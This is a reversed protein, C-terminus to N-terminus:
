AFSALFPARHSINYTPGKKSLKSEILIAESVDLSVKAASLQRVASRLNGKPTKGSVRGLVIHPIFKNEPDLKIKFVNLCEKQFREIMTQRLESDENMEMWITRVQGESPFCEIKGSNLKFPACQSAANNLNKTLLRREKGHPNGLFQVTLHLQEDKVWSVEKFEMALPNKVEALTEKIEGTLEIGVSYRM